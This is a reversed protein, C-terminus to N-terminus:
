RSADLHKYHNNSQPTFERSTALPLKEKSEVHNSSSVVMLHNNNEKNRTSGNFVSECQSVM